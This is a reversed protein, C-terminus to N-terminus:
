ALDSAMPSSSALWKMARRMRGISEHSVERRENWMLSGKASARTRQKHALDIRFRIDLNSLGNTGNATM